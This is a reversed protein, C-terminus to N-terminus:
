RATDLAESFAGVIVLFAVQGASALMWTLQELM